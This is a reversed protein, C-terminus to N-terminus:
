RCPYGGELTLPLQQWLEVRPMRRVRPRFLVVGCEPEQKKKGYLRLEMQIPMSVQKDRTPPRRFIYGRDLAKRALRRIYDAEYGARLCVDPFDETNHFIWSHAASRAIQEDEDKCNNGIDSLAQNIVAQWLREDSHHFANYAPFQEREQRDGQEEIAQWLIDAIDEDSLPSNRM